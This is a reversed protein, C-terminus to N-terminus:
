LPKNIFGTVCKYNKKRCFNSVAARTELTLFYASERIAAYCKIQEIQKIYTNCVYGMSVPGTNFTCQVYISRLNFM